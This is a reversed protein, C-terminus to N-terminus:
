VKPGRMALIVESLLPGDSADLAAQVEALTMTAESARKKMAPGLESLIGAKRLADTVQERERLLKRTPVARETLLRHAFRQVPEGAQTAEIQLQEYQETSLEVTLTTM